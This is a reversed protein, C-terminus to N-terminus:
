DKSCSPTVGLGYIIPRRLLALTAAIATFLIAGTAAVAMFRLALGPPAPNKTAVANMSEAEFGIYAALGGLLLGAIWACAFWRGLFLSGRHLPRTFLYTLTKVQGGGGDSVHGADPRGPRQLMAAGARDFDAHLRADPRQPAALTTSCVVLIVLVLCLLM